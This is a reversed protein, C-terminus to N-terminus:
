VHLARDHVALAAEKLTEALTPHAHVTRALDEASAGYTMAAVAEAILDGAHAGIVHVGLIRDTDAHALITVKGGTAELARARGNAQYPFAGKVYPTGAAKLAEESAGVTAIEPDTYVVGPVLDYDVHGVGTVIGEVAAVGDEEAKHALMPGAIVDGIAYVGPVNTAFRGDVEIRGRDDTAVGVAELGLGETNPIRGTALLVREAEVDDGGDVAVVARRTRGRGKLTVGTVRAGLRFHLGQKTFTTRAQKALGADMGPLIRDAYELVTVESGLRSWVSGLELGIYGAGIVALRKPVADFALAGSSDVVVTGDVEVGPLAAPRSGTALLVHEAALATPGDEGDVVVEGPGTLRGTGAYRTVGNKKMLFAVGDTNAQVVADKRAMMADLDLTPPDVHVGHVALGHGAHHYQESSELLAKSPICGVRLCTGGLTPEKEVIAVDLGLQAGRIAAVYGGPGAGVVVLDHTRPADPTPDPKAM